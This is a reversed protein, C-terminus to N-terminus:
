EGTEKRKVEGKGAQREVRLRGKGQGFCERSKDGKQQPVFARRKNEKGEPGWLLGRGEGRTGGLGIEKRRRPTTRSVQRDTLKGNDDDM